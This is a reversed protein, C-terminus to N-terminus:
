PQQQQANGESAEWQEVLQKREEEELVRWVPKDRYLTLEAMELKDAALKVDLTKSLM